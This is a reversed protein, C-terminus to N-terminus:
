QNKEEECGEQQNVIEAAAVGNHLWRQLNGWCLIGLHWAQLRGQDAAERDWFVQAVVGTV